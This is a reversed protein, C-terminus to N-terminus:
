ESETGVVLLLRNVQRMVSANPAVIREAQLLRQLAARGAPHEHLRLIEADVQARLPSALRATAVVGDPPIPETVDLTRLLRGSRGFTAVVEAQAQVKDAARSLFCACVDAEGNVVADCAAAASGCFIEEKLKGPDLGRSKLHMRPFLYGSASQRDVWAARAGALERITKYRSAAGVLIASRYFLAGGRESVGILEAGTASARAHMLPPMWAVDVAAARVDRLLREYDYAVHVDVQLALREGLVRAFEHAGALLNPGGNSRSIGFRLVQGCAESPASV